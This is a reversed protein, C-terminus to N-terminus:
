ARDKKLTVFAAGLVALVGFSVVAGCGEATEETTSEETVDGTPADTPAQTPANTPAQTPPTTPPETPDPQSNIGPLIVFAVLCLVALACVLIIPLMFKKMNKKRETNRFSM